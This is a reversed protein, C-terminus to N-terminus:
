KFLHGRPAPAIEREDSRNTIGPAEIPLQRDEKEEWNKGRSIERPASSRPHHTSSSRSILEGGHRARTSGTREDRSHRFYENAIKMPV